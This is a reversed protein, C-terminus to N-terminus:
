IEDEIKKMGVKVVIARTILMVLVFAGGSILGVLWWAMNDKVEEMPMEPMFVPEDNFSPQETYIFGEISRTETLVNGSSDEFSFILKGHAQEAGVATVEIESYSGRGSDVNGIYVEGVPAYDGEVTVKLNSITAKGMNYYEFSVYGTNGQYMEYPGYINNISLNTKEIVPLNIVEVANYSTGKEDEYGSEITIPYAKSLADQKTKLTITKEIEQQPELREVYFSNSGGALSLITGDTEIFSKMNVIAKSNHTNKLKFTLKVEKGAVVTSPSVDYSSIILKPASKSSTGSAGKVNNIYFTKSDSYSKNDQDFYELKIGLEHIGEEVDESVLLDYEVRKSEQGDLMDFYRTDISDKVMFTNKGTGALTLKVRRALLDGTNFLDFSLRIDSGAVVESPTTSINKLEMLPKSKEEIVEFYLTQKNTYQSGSYNSYTIDFPLEYIGVDATEKVCLNLKLEKKGGASMRNIAYTDVATEWYIPADKASNSINVYKASENGVNKVVINVEFNDGAKVKQIDLKNEFVIKPYEAEYEDAFVFGTCLILAIFLSFIIKKM